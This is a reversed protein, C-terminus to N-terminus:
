LQKLAEWQQKEGALFAAFGPARRISDLDPDAAFFPLLPSRHRGGGIAM